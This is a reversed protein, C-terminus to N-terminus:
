NWSYFPLMKKLDTIKPESRTLEKMYETRASLRQVIVDPTIFFEVELALLTDEYQKRVIQYYYYFRVALADDRRSMHVNRHGKQETKPKIQSPFIKIIAQQGRM